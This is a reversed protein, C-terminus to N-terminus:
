EQRLLAYQYIDHFQGDWFGAQRLLGKRKYGLRDVSRISAANSPHVQAEIHNLQMSELGWALCSRLAEQMYGNGHM